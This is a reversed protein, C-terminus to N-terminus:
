SEGRLIASGPFTKDVGVFDNETVITVFFSGMM